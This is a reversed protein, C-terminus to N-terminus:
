LYKKKYKLNKKKLFFFDKKSQKLGWYKQFNVSNKINLKKLLIKHIAYYRRSVDNIPGDFDFFIKNKTL